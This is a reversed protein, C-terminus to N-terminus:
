YTGPMSSGYKINAAKVAGEKHMSPVISYSVEMGMSPLETEKFDKIHFFIDNSTIGDVIFGYGDKDSYSKISGVRRKDGSSLEPARTPECLKSAMLVFSNGDNVRKLEVSAEACKLGLTDEIFAVDISSEPSIVIGNRQLEFKM